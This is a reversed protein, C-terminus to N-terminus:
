MRRSTNGNQTLTKRIHTDKLDCAERAVSHAIPKDNSNIIFCCTSFTAFFFRSHLSCCLSLALSHSASFLCVTFLMMNSSCMFLRIPDTYVCVANAMLKLPFAALEHLKECPFYKPFYHQNSDAKKNDNSNNNNGSSYEALFFLFRFQSFAESCSSFTNRKRRVLGWEIHQM